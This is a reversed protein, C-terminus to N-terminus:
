TKRVTQGNADIWHWLGKEREEKKHEAETLMREIEADAAAMDYDCMPCQGAGDLPGHCCICGILM